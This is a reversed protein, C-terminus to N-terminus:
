HFASQSEKGGMEVVVIGRSVMVSRNIFLHLPPREEDEDGTMNVDIEYGGSHYM